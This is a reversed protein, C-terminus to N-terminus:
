VNRAAKELAEDIVQSMPKCEFNCTPKDCVYHDCKRCYGRPRTRQPNLIVIVQCHSCTVTPTERLPGGSARDDILLFGEQSRKSFIM